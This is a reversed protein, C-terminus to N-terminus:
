HKKRKLIISVFALFIMSGFFGPSRSSSTSSIEASTYTTTYTVEPFNVTFWIIKSVGVNGAFDLAYIVVYHSGEQLNTLKINDTITINAMGDLSYGLWSTSEDITFTKETERWSLAYLLVNFM